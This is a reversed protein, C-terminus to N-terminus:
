TEIGPECAFTYRCQPFQQFQGPAFDRGQYLNLRLIDGILDDALDLAHFSAFIWVYVSLPTHLATIFSDIWIKNQRLFRAHLKKLIWKALFNFILVFIVISIAEYVWGYIGDMAASIFRYIDELYNRLM